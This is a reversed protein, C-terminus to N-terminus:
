ITMLITLLCPGTCDTVMAVVNEDVVTDEEGACCVYELYEIECPSVFARAASIGLIVLLLASRM